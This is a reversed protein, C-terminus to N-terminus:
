KTTWLIHNCPPCFVLSIGDHERVSTKATMETLLLKLVPLDYSSQQYRPKQLPQLEEPLMLDRTSALLESRITVKGRTSFNIAPQVAHIGRLIVKYPELQIPELEKVQERGVDCPNGTNMGTAVHTVDIRDGEGEIYARAPDEALLGVFTDVDDQAFIAVLNYRDIHGEKAM